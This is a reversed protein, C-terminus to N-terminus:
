KNTSVNMNFFMPNKTKTVINLSHEKVVIYRNLKHIDGFTKTGINLSHEKVLEATSLVFPLVPFNEDRHKPFTRESLM